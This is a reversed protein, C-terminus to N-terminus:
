DIQHVLRSLSRGMAEPPSMTEVQAGFPVWYTWYLSSNVESPVAVGVKVLISNVYEGVSVVGGAVLAELIVAELPLPPVLIDLPPQALLSGYKAQDAAM